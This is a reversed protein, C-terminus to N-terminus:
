LAFRRWEAVLSEARAEPLSIHQSLRSLDFSVEAIAEPPAPRLTFGLDAARLLDGMLIPTPQALNLVQPLRACGMLDLLAHSLTKVGIYSRRPTSGDAFQDLCFGPKWGGLIADFGAVNGIRLIVVEIGLEAARVLAQAEMEAKARGYASAPKLAQDERLLGAQAGYVAASSTLVVRRCGAAAGAELAALALQSNAALDGQVAGALCLIQSCGTAAQSLAGEQQLPSLIRWDEQALATEPRARGQLTLPISKPAFHRLAQGIRGSAGM